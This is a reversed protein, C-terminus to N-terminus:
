QRDYVATNNVMLGEPDTGKYTVTLTKGDASVIRRSEGVTTDGHKLIAGATQDDIKTMVIADAPGPGMVPYDKGDLNQPLEIVTSDGGATVTRLTVKMGGPLAEYTRTQSRPPPGPDFKSKAINLKWTGVVPDAGWAALATGLLFILSTSARLSM